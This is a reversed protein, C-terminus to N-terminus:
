IFVIAYERLCWEATSATRSKGDNIENAKRRCHQRQEQSHRHNPSHSMSFLSESRLLIAGIHIHLM